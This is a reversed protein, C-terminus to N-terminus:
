KNIQKYRKTQIVPFFNFISCLFPSLIKGVKMRAGGSEVAAREGTERKESEGGFGIEEGNGDSM